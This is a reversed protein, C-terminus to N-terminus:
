FISMPRYRSFAPNGKAQGCDAGAATPDFLPSMRHRIRQNDVDSVADGRERDASLVAAVREIVAGQQLHLFDDLLKRSRIDAGDDDAPGSRFGEASAGIDLFQGRLAELVADSMRIEPM